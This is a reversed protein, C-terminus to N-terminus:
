YELVQLSITKGVISDPIVSIINTSSIFDNMCYSWIKLLSYSSELFSLNYSVLIQCDHLNYPVEHSWYKNNVSLNKISYLGSDKDSVYLILM